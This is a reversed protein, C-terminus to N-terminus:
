DVVSLGDLGDHPDDTRVWGALAMDEESLAMVETGDDLLLFLHDGNWEGNSKLQDMFDRREGADLGRVVVVSGPPIVQRSM